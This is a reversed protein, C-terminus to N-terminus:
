LPERIDWVGDMNIDFDFADIGFEAYNSDLWMSAPLQTVGPMAPHYPDADFQGPLSTPSPDMQSPFAVRQWEVRKYHLDLFRQGCAAKAAQRTEKGLHAKLLMIAGCMTVFCWPEGHCYRLYIDETFPLCQELLNITAQPDAMMMSSPVESELMTIRVLNLSALLLDGRLVTLSQLGLQGLESNLLLIDRSTHYCVTESLWFKGEKRQLYPRHLTLICEKLQFLLYARTLAAHKPGAQEKGNGTDWSPIADIEQTIQHTYKLVDDYSLDESCRSSFLRQSIELRLSWSRSSQNQYSSMTYESSAKPTPLRKTTEDFDEDSINAAPAVDPNINHLLTPLGSEFANQLDLERIVNWVRRKMERMYATDNESASDCHLGDLIADQLLSSTDKWWRKKGLMSVRKALYILCSLQYHVLKRYKPSQHRLWDECASIWQTPMARYKMPISTADGSDPFAYMSISIIALILATMAPYRPQQPTWFNAYERRFTPIHIIRHLQEVNDLYFPVLADADEKLPLLHDLTVEQQLAASTARDDRKHKTKILDVGHPKFWEDATEKIFPFLEPIESFFQFIAHQSYYVRPSRKKPDSLGTGNAGAPSQNPHGGSFITEQDLHVENLTEDQSDKISNRDGQGQGDLMTPPDYASCDATDPTELSNHGQRTLRAESLSAKLEAVEERLDQIQQEQLGSAPNSTPPQDRVTEFSCQGPRGSRVCRQCPLSRDCSLKKKRCEMCSLRLRKRRPKKETTRSDPRTANSQKAKGAINPESNSPM